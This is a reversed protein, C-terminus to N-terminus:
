ADDDKTTTLCTAPDLGCVSRLRQESRPFEETTLKVLSRTMKKKVFSSYTRLCPLAGGIEVTLFFILNEGLTISALSLPRSYGVFRRDMPDESYGLVTFSGVPRGIPATLAKLKNTQIVRKLLDCLYFVLSLIPFPVVTRSKGQKSGAASLFSSPQVGGSEASEAM